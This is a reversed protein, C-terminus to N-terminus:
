RALLRSPEEIIQKWTEVLRALEVGEVLRHDATFTADMVLRPEIKWEKGEELADLGAAVKKARKEDGKAFRPEVRTRGIAGIALQGTPPVVPHTNRGGIVGVNSLTLTGAGQYDPPFKPASSSASSSAPPLFSQLHALSSALDFISSQDTNRLVPTFLGGSPANSALAVSIDTSRRRLLAPEDASSDHWCLFLPHEAMALSLAKLLLPLLTVRDVQREPAVREVTSGWHGQRALALEDAPSLTKRFRLPITSSLSLRLRELETVDITDSYAFHPIALSGTMARFMARRTPSLPILTSERAPVSKPPSSPSVAEKSPAHPRNDQNSNAAALVDEKMVRGNRGTGQVAALDVGKERAFRRTAPTALIESSSNTRSTSSSSSVTARLLDISSTPQSAEASTPAPPSPVDTDEAAEVADSEGIEITCLTSGVKLMDGAAGSLETVKGTFPSTIEVSAKDSMVEVVPDFEEVTDGPKVLWKVIECETIGEGIDALVFPKVQGRSLTTASFHRADSAADGPPSAVADRGFACTVWFHAPEM